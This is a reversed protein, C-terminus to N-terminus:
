DTWVVVSNTLRQTFIARGRKDKELQEMQDMQGMQKQEMQRQKMKKWRNTTRRSINRIQEGMMQAHLYSAM